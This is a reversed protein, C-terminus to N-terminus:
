TVPSYPNNQHNTKPVFGHHSLSRKPYAEERIREDLLVAMNQSDTLWYINSAKGSSVGTREYYELTKTVALLERHGSSLERESENLVGRYYLHEGKISYACTAFGSADSAWIQEELRTGWGRQRVAEDLDIYAARTTMVVVPGLAPETAVIKGLIKSLDRALISKPGYNITEKVIGTEKLDAVAKYVFDLDQYASANNPEEYAQPLKGFPIVYGNKLTDMVWEGAKLNTQWFERVEETHISGPFFITQEAEKENIGFTNSHSDPDVALAAERGFNSHIIEASNWKHTNKPCNRVFHETAVCLYCKRIDDRTTPQKWGRAYGGRGRPVYRGRYSGSPGAGFEGKFRKPQANSREKATERDRERKYELKEKEELVKALDDDLYEGNKKRFEALAVLAARKDTGEEMQAVIRRAGLIGNQLPVIIKELAELQSEHSAYAITFDVVLYTRNM